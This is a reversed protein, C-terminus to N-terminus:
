CATEARTGPQIAIAGGALRSRRSVQSSPLYKKLWVPPPVEYDVGTPGGFYQGQNTEEAALAYHILHKKCFRVDDDVFLVLCKDNLMEIAKNLARNKGPAEVHLYRLEFQSAFRRAVAEAGQPPGNEIVITECYVSPRACRSLSNLTRELTASGGCTPIVLSLESAM